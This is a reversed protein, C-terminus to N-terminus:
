PISKRITEKIEDANERMVELRRKQFSGKKPVTDYYVVVEEDPIVVCLARYEASMASFRIEAVTLGELSFVSQFRKSLQSMNKCWKIESEKSELADELNRAVQFSIDDSVSEIDEEVWLLSFGM